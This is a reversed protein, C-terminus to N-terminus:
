PSSIPTARFVAHAPVMLRGLGPQKSGERERIRHKRTTVGQAIEELYGLPSKGPRQWDGNRSELNTNTSLRQPCDRRWHPWAPSPVNSEQHQQPM